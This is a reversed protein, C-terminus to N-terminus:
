SDTWNKEVAGLSVMPKIEPVEGDIDLVKLLEVNSVRDAPSKQIYHLLPNSGGGKEVILCGGNQFIDGEMNSTLGLARATSIAERSASSLLVRIAEILSMSKFDLARYSMRNEDIFAEGEFYKLKMFMEIGVREFGVGILNVNNEKLLPQIASIEKAM